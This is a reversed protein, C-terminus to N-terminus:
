WLGGEYRDERASDGGFVRRDPQRYEDYVSPNRDYRLCGTSEQLLSVVVRRQDCLDRQCFFTALGTNRQIATSHEM